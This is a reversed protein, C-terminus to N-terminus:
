SWTGAFTEDLAREVETEIMGADIAAYPIGYGGLTRQFRLIGNATQLETWAVNLNDLGRRVSESLSSAVFTNIGRAAVADAGEPNGKGMMKVECKAAQGDQRMLFFDVERDLDDRDSWRSFHTEPVRFVRCLTEMLPAEVQKGMSSWAGGRLGARTVALANIVDWSEAADLEVREGNTTLHILPQRSSGLVRRVQERFRDLHLLSEEVVVDHRQSGRRNSVTKLNTGAAWAVEAKDGAARVVRDKYWDSGETKGQARAEAVTRLFEVARQLFRRDILATIVDRHDAGLLALRVVERISEHDLRTSM